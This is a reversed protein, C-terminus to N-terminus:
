SSNGITRHRPKTDLLHTRFRRAADAQRTAINADTRGASSRTSRSMIALIRWSPRALEFTISVAEPSMSPIPGRRVPDGWAFAALSHVFFLIVWHPRELACRSAHPGNPRPQHYSFLETRM